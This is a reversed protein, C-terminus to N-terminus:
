REIEIQRYDQHFLTLSKAFSRNKNLTKVKLTIMHLILQLVYTAEKEM